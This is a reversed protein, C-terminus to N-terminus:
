GNVSFSSDPNIERLRSFCALDIELGTYMGRVKLGERDHDYGLECADILEAMAYGAVGANKFQNGSTGIAMYFGPLASRDYIPIWDDSVDYLSVVGRREFPIELSPIRRAMRLVQAEWQRASVADDYDDPDDVWEQPDCAPDESGILIHNGVEPRCYVGSDSDSVHIGHHEFDVGPPAPIHHVEHRLPRTAIKMDDAVGALQNIIASHPGAVNVVIPASLNEGSRLTVGSVRGNTREISGVETRFRFTAGKAEAARQLNHTALQPDNVHGGGPEYLAGTLVTDPTEWFAPDDPRRPPWFRHLDLYPFRETVQDSTWLEHPVGLENFLRVIRDYRDSADPFVVSGTEHFVALGREDPAELYCAWNKWYFSGEYAMAVGHRTSYTFRIIACSASTPGYGAAPLKDVNVTRYGRKSLEFALAAGIVGAGIIIADYNSQPNDVTM